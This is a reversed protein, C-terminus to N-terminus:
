FTWTSLLEALNFNPCTKGERSLESHPVIDTKNLDYRHCLKECLKELADFQLQNFLKKGSLCVGISEMNFGQCHAGVDQETRGPFVRGQSSIFYHYGIKKFGRQRHWSDIVDINDHQPLDSDSCHVIIKTVKRM